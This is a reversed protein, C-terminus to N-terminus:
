FLNPTRGRRGRQCGERLWPQPSRHNDHHHRSQDMEEEGEWPGSLLLPRWPWVLTAHPGSRPWREQVEWGVEVRKKGSPCALCASSGGGTKSSSLLILVVFSLTVCCQLDVVTWYYKLFLFSVPGWTFFFVGSKGTLM